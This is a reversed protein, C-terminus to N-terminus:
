SQTYTATVTYTGQSAFAQDVSDFFDRVDNTTAIASVCTGIHTVTVGSPVDFGTAASTIKSSAAAGWAWGKRAYAPSGGTVENTAAGTTAPAGAFLMGNPAEVGYRNALANRQAEIQIPM